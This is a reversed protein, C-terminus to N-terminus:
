ASVEANWVAGEVLAAPGMVTVIVEDRDPQGVCRGPVGFTDGQKLSVVGGLDGVGSAPSSVPEDLGLGAVEILYVARLSTLNANISPSPIRQARHRVISILVGKTLVTGSGQGGPRYRADVGADARASAWDAAALTALPTSRPDALTM